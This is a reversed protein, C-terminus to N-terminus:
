NETHISSFRSDNKSIRKLIQNHIVSIPLDGNILEIYGFKSTIDQYGYYVAQHFEDSEQEIRDLAQQQKRENLRQAATEFSPNLIFTIDPELNKTATLSIQLLEHYNLKRAYSQYVLSSHFYRDSIVIYGEELKPLIVTETLYVRSASLIFFESLPTCNDNLLITRLKEGLDTGGPERVLIAPINNQTCYDMLLRSQSSKGSCEIGEFTIFLSKM